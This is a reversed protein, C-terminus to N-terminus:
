NLNLVTTPVPSHGKLITWQESSPSKGSTRAVWQQPLWRGDPERTHQSLSPTSFFSETMAREKSHVTYALVM